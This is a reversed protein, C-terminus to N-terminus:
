SHSLNVEIKSCLEIIKDIQDGDERNILSAQLNFWIKHAFFMNVDCGKILFKEIEMNQDENLDNRLYYALIQPIYFELDARNNSRVNKHKILKPNIRITELRKICSKSKKM